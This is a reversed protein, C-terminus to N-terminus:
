EIPLRLGVIFKAEDNYFGDADDIVKGLTFTLNDNFFYSLDLHSLDDEHVGYKIGFKAFNLEATVYNYDDYSYGREEENAINDYYTIKAPGYGVSAVIEAFDGPGIDGESYNYSVYSLGYSFDRFEGAYGAYLDYETGWAEDGSSTWVGATFGAASVNLDGWVAAGGGLDLGRWYYMNAAGVSASVEPAASAAPAAAISAMASLTIAGALLRQKMKKM